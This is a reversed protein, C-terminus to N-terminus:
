QHDESGMLKIVPNVYDVTSTFTSLVMSMTDGSQIDHSVIFCSIPYLSNNNGIGQGMSSHVNAPQGNATLGGISLLTETGGRTKKLQLTVRGFSSNITVVVGFFILYTNHIISDSVTTEFITVPGNAEKVTGEMSNANPNTAHNHSGNMTPGHIIDAIVESASITGDIFSANGFISHGTVDLTGAISTNGSSSAVTFKNNSIDFDGDIGTAGTVNLTGSASINTFSANTFSANGTVDLTGAISTNGSSSAVTFKNTSIDFDGDIGTAGTVDLTGSASINTFSANNGRLDINYNLNSDSLNPNTDSASLNAATAVSFVREHNLGIFVNSASVNDYIVIGSSSASIEGNPDVSSANIAILKDKIVLNDTHVTTTSGNVKLNGEITMSGNLNLFNSTKDYTFDSDGGFSGGDNFQVEKDNGSPKGSSSQKKSLISLQSSSQIDM